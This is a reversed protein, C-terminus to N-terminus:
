HLTGEMTWLEGFIVQSITRETRRKSHHRGTAPSCEGGRGSTKLQLRCTYKGFTQKDKM